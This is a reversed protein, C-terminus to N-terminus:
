SNRMIFGLREAMRSNFARHSVESNLHIIRECDCFLDVDSRGRRRWTLCSNIIL